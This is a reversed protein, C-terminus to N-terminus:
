PARRPPQTIKRDGNRKSARLAEIESAAWAAMATTNNPWGDAGAEQLLKKTAIERARLTDNEVDRRHLRLLWYPGLAFGAVMILIAFACELLLEAIPGHRDETLTARAELIEKGARDIDMEKM